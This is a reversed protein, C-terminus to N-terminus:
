KQLGIILSYLEMVHSIEEKRGNCDYFGFTSNGYHGGSLKYHTASTTMLKGFMDFEVGYEGPLELCIDPVNSEFEGRYLDRGFKIWLPQPIDSEKICM